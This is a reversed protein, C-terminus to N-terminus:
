TGRLTQIRAEQKKAPIVVTITVEKRSNKRRLEVLKQTQELPIIQDSGKVKFGVRGDQEVLRGVTEFRVWTPTFGAKTVTKRLKKVDM